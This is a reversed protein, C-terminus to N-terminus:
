LLFLGIRSLRREESFVVNLLYARAGSRFLYVTQSAPIVLFGGLRYLVM